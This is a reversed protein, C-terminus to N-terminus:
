IKMRFEVISTTRDVFYGTQCLAWALYGAPHAQADLLLQKHAKSSAICQHQDVPWFLRKARKHFRCRGMQVQAISGCKSM